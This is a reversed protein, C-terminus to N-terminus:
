MFFCVCLLLQWIGTTDTYVILRMNLTNNMEHLTCWFTSSILIAKNVKCM